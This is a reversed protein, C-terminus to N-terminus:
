SQALALAQRASAVAERLTGLGASVGRATYARVAELYPDRYGHGGGAGTGTGAGPSASGSGSTGPLGGDMASYSSPTQSSSEWETGIRFQYEPPYVASHGEIGDGSASSRRQAAARRRLVEISLMASAPSGSGSDLGLASLPLNPVPPENEGVVGAYSRGFPSDGGPPEPGVSHNAGRGGAPVGAGASPWRGLFPLPAQFGPDSPRWGMAELETGGVVPTSDGGFGQLDTRSGFAGTGQAYAMSGAGQGPWDGRAFATLTDNLGLPLPLIGAEALAGAAARPHQTTLVFPEAQEFALADQSGFPLLRSLQRTYEDFPLPADRARRGSRRISLLLPDACTNCGMATCSSCRADHVACSVCSANGTGGVDVDADSLFYGDICRM